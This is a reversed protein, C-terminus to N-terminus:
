TLQIGLTIVTLWSERQSAVTSSVDGPIGIVGVPVRDNLEVSGVPVKLGILQVRDLPEHETVNVGLACPLIVIV